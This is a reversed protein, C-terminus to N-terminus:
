ALCSLSNTEEPKSPSMEGNETSGLHVSTTGDWCVPVAVRLPLPVSTVEQLLYIFCAVLMEQSAVSLFFPFHYLFVLYHM